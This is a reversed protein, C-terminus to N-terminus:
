FRWTACLMPAGERTMSVGMDLKERSRASRLANVASLVHNAVIVGTVVKAYDSNNTVDKRMRNYNMQHSDNDWDWAYDEPYANADIYEQQAAPDDPFRSLADRMVSENYGGGGFGSNDYKSLNVWYADDYDGPNIGAYQVAYDHARDAMIDSENNFYFNGAWLLAESALFIYGTRDGMHLEGWGPVVLSRLIVLKDIAACNAAAFLLLIALLIKSTTRM